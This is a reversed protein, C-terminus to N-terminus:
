YNFSKAELWGGVRVYDISGYTAIHGVSQPLFHMGRKLKRKVRPMEKSGKQAAHQTDCVM